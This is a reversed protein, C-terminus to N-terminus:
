LYIIRNGSVNRLEGVLILRLRNLQPMQHAVAAAIERKRTNYHILGRLLHSNLIGQICLENVPFVKCLFADATHCAAQIGLGTEGSTRSLAHAVAVVTKTQKRINHATMGTIAGKCLIQILLDQLRDTHVAAVDAKDAVALVLICCDQIRQLVSGPSSVAVVLVICEDQVAAATHLGSQTIHQLISNHIQIFTHCSVSVADYLTISNLLHFLRSLEHLRAYVIAVPQLRLLYTVTSNILM